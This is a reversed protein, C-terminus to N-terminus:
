PQPSAQAARGSELCAKLYDMNRAEDKRMLRIFVPFFLRALGHARADFAARLRTGGAEESLTVSLTVAIPGGNVWAWRYPREYETCVLELHGSMTWKAAMRTGLGIPGDTLKTMARVKPNWELENRSDVAFDFVEEIPRNILTTNRILTMNKEMGSPAAPVLVRGMALVWLPISLWALGGAILGTWVVAAVGIALGTLAVVASCLMTAAILRATRAVRARGLGPLRAGRSGIALLWVTAALVAGATVASGGSPLGTVTLVGQVAATAFAVAGAIRLVQDSRQQRSLFRFVVGSIVALLANQPIGAYDAASGLIATVGHPEAFRQVAFSAYFAIFLSNAIVGAAAAAYAWSRARTETM